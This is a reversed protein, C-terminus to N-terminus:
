ILMADILYAERMFYGAFLFALAANAVCINM